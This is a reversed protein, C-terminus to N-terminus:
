SFMGMPNMDTDPCLFCCSPREPFLRITLGQSAYYGSTNESNKCLTGTKKAENDSTGRNEM